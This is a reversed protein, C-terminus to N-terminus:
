GGPATGVLPAPPATTPGVAAPPAATTALPPATATALQQARALADEYFGEVAAEEPQLGLESVAFNIGMAVAPDSTLVDQVKKDLAALAAVIGTAAKNVPANFDFGLLGM